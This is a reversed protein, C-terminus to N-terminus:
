CLGIGSPLAASNHRRRAMGGLLGLGGLMLMWTEPEPVPTIVSNIWGSYTSLAIGAGGTGSELGSSWSVEMTNIGALQWHNSASDFVFAASGSDGGVLSAELALPTSSGWIGSQSSIDYDFGYVQPGKADTVMHDAVNEGHRPGNASGYSVLSLTQGKMDGTYLSYALAGTAVPTSLKIISLDGFNQSSGIDGGISGSFTSNRFVDSATYTTGGLTFSIQSASGPGAVHAATLVYDPAILTGTFLGTGVTLSGVGAWPSDAATSLVEGGELAFASLPAGLACV